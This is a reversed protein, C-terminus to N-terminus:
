MASHFFVAYKAYETLVAAIPERKVTVPIIGREKLQAGPGEGVGSCFLLSCDALQRIINDLLDAKSPGPACDSRGNCYPEAQRIDVPHAKGQILDFIYFEKAHGFHRNVIRGGESCVAVRVANAKAKAAAIPIASSRSHEAGAPAVSVKQPSACRSIRAATASCGDPNCSSRDALREDHGLFGIADARCQKCHRMVAMHRGTEQRAKELEEDTPSRMGMKAFKSEAVPILPMVNHLIAGLERIKASIAGIHKDNIGPILVTNVKCLIGAAAAARLGQLQRGILLAAARRGKYVIGNHTVRAYIHQGIDPDIANITVTLHSIGTEVIEDLHDPLMLGNTSLCLHADPLKEAVGRFTEFTREPNALPDGPGAIGIVTLQPMRLSVEAARNVADHPKLVSSSVGPRSENACDYKRHCYNCSINCKPAVPLHMRAYRHQADEGYCPHRNPSSDPGSSRSEPLETLFQSM